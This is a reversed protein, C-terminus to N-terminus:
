LALQGAKINAMSESDDIAITVQYHRKSPKTWRKDKCFQSAIYPIILRMLIQEFIVKYDSQRM